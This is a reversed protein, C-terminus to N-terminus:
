IGKTESEGARDKLQEREAREREAQCPRLYVPSLAQDTTYDGQRYADLAVEAVSYASQYRLREPTHGIPHTLLSKALEYGDGVLYIPENYAALATDLEEYSLASDPM